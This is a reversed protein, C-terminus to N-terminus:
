GFPFECLSERRRRCSVHGNLSNSHAYVREELGGKEYEEGNSKRPTFAAHTHEIVETFYRGVGEDGREEEESGGRKVLHLISSLLDLVFFSASLLM